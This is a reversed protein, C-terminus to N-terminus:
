PLRSGTQALASPESGLATEHVTVIDSLGNRAANRSIWAVNAPMPEFAIVDAGVRQAYSGLSVTWLGLAAGADIVTTEPRIYRSLYEIESRDYSGTFAARWTMRSSAPLDFDLGNAHVDWTGECPTHLRLALAGKGRLEPLRQALKALRQM